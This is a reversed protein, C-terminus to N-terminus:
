SFYFQRLLQHEFYDMSFGDCTERTLMILEEMVLWESLRHNNEELIPCIM